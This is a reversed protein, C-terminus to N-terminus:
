IIMGLAQRRQAKETIEEPTLQEDDSDSDTSPTYLPWKLHYCKCLKCYESSGERSYPLGRARANASARSERMRFCGSLGHVAGSLKVYKTGRRRYGRRALIAFRRSRNPM